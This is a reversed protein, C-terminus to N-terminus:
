TSTSVLSSGPTFVNLIKKVLRRLKRKWRKEMRESHIRDRESQAAKRLLESPHLNDPIERDKVVFWSPYGCYSESEVFETRLLSDAGINLVFENVAWVVLPWDEHYDDGALVGGIKLKQYWDYLTQGGDEGTHAFGDVYIFDFYGDPFLDLAEDFRMRLLHYPKELGIRAIASKYERTDHIDGYLDVGFFLKFKNSEIMRQSFKGEAVGLEIGVNETGCLRDIVSQRYTGPIVKVDISPTKQQALNRIQDTNM